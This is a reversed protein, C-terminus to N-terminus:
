PKPRNLTKLNLTQPKLTYSKLGTCCFPKLLLQRKSQTLGDSAVLGFNSLRSQTYNKHLGGDLSGLAGLFESFAKSRLGLTTM